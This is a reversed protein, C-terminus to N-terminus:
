PRRCILARHIYQVCLYLQKRLTDQVKSKFKYQVMSCVQQSANTDRIFVITKSSSPGLAVPLLINWFMTALQASRLPLVDMKCDSFLGEGLERVVGAASNSDTLRTSM